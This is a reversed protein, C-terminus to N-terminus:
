RVLKGVEEESIGLETATKSRWEDFLDNVAEDLKLEALDAKAEEETDYFSYVLVGDVDVVAWEKPKAEEYKSKFVEQEEKSFHKIRFAM